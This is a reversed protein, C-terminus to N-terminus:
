YWEVEFKVTADLLVPAYAGALVDTNATKSIFNLNVTQNVRNFSWGTGGDTGEVDQVTPTKLSIYTNSNILKDVACGTGTSGPYLTIVSSHMYTPGNTSDFPKTIYINYTYTKVASSACNFYQCIRNLPLQIYCYHTGNSTGSYKATYGTWDDFANKFINSMNGAAYIMKKQQPYLISTTDITTKLTSIDIKLEDTTQPYINTTNISAAVTSTGSIFISSALGGSFILQPIQSGSGYEGYPAKFGSLYIKQAMVHAADENLIMYSISNSLGVSNKTNLNIQYQHNRTLIVSNDIDEQFKSNYGIVTAYAATVNLNNGIVSGYTTDAINNVGIVTINSNTTSPSTVTNNYGVNLINNTHNFTFNYSGVVDDQAQLSSALIPRDINSTFTYDAM